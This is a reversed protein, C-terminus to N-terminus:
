VPLPLHHFARFSSDSFQCEVNQSVGCNSWWHFSSGGFIWLDELNGRYKWGGFVWIKLSEASFWRLVMREWVEQLIKLKKAKMGLCQGWNQASEMREAYEGIIKRSAVDFNLFSSEPSKSSDAKTDRWFCASSASGFIHATMFCFGADIQGEVDIEGGFTEFSKGRNPQQARVVWLLLWKVRVREERSRAAPIRVWNREGSALVNIPNNRRFFNFSARFNSVWCNQQFRKETHRTKRLIEANELIWMELMGNKGRFATITSDLYAYIKSFFKTHQHHRDIFKPRLLLM